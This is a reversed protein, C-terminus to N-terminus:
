TACSLFAGGRRQLIFCNIRIEVSGANSLACRSYHTGYHFPREGGPEQEMSKYREKAQQLCTPELSGIPRSLDRYVNPDDLDLSRSAYDKLIWPFVPYMSLDNYSRGAITNLWMLYSFNSIEHRQWKEMMNSRRFQDYPSRTDCSVLSSQRLTIIKNVINVRDKPDPFHFLSTTGDSFFLELASKRLHYRRLHVEKLSELPWRRDKLCEAEIVRPYELTDKREVSFSFGKSSIELRGPVTVTLYVLDCFVSLLSKDGPPASSGDQDIGFVEEADSSNAVSQVRMSVKRLADLQEEDEKTTSSVTRDRRSAAFGYDDFDYNPM